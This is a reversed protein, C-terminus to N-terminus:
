LECLKFKLGIKLKLPRKEKTVISRSLFYCIKIERSSVKSLKNDLWTLKKELQSVPLVKVDRERILQTQGGLSGTAIVYRYPSGSAAMLLVLALGLEASNGESLYEPYSSYLRQQELWAQPKFWQYFAVKPRKLGLKRVAGAAVSGSRYLVPNVKRLTAAVRDWDKDIAQNDIDDGFTYPQTYVNILQDDASLSKASDNTGPKVIPILV